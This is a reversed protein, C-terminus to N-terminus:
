LRRRKETAVEIALKSIARVTSKTRDVHARVWESRVEVVSLALWEGVVEAVAAAAEREGEHWSVVEFDGRSMMGVIAWRLPSVAMRDDVRAWRM